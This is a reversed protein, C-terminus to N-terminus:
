CGAPVAAGRSWGTRRPGGRPSSISPRVRRLRHVHQAQALKGDEYWQRGLEGGGRVHAIAFAVGRDLLSVRANSFTPDMSAEYSGYGYLLLPMPEASRRDRRYVLSIPVRTGDPAVAWLRHSDYQDAEYGHVTQRKVLTAVRTDLEYDFASSPTVLSSYQFRLRASEFEPNGGVWASYVDDPMELVHQDAVAGDVGLALVRIRELADARESVVLHGAFADVDDLRVDPRHPLVPTWHDRGPTATPAVLLQFNEAGDANSLVFLRDGGRGIHHEVHYEHGQERPQVLRPPSTPDDADVLRVETTVKSASTIVLFRGTRTRDISVFFRDDREEFVIVDTDAATGLVHRWVQWPRMADDPRTYLVTRNDNAWAM